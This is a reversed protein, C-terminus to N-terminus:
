ISYDEVLPEVVAFFENYVEKRIRLFDQSGVRDRPRPLDVNIIKQIKGPRSSLVVIKDSLSVAEDIDHTVLIM